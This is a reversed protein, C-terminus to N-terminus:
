WSATSSAEHLIFTLVPAGFSDLLGAALEALVADAVGAGTEPLVESLLLVSRTSPTILGQRSQRWVFHRTLVTPGDAYAVEGPPIAEPESADLALFRDGEHTLRLDLDQGIQDLDFGGAPVVYRLSVANYFDVMPNIRFPDGGKLARRLLAEVSSPYQKPSVGMAWFRDRWPAVHPHSQANGFVAADKAASWATEWATAIRPRDVLNDIGDAVVVVVRMGPFRAFVEPRIILDM